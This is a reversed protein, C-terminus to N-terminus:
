ESKCIEDFEKLFCTECIATKDYVLERKCRICRKPLPIVNADTM